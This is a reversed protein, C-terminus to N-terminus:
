RSYDIMTTMTTEDDGDYDDDWDDDDDNANIRKLASYRRSDNLKLHM